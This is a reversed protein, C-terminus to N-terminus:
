LLGFHLASFVFSLFYSYVYQVNTMIIFFVIQKDVHMIVVFM